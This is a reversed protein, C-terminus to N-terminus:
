EVSQSHGDIGIKESTESDAIQQLKSNQVNPFICIIVHFEKKAVENRSTQVFNDTGKEQRVKVAPTQKANLVETM